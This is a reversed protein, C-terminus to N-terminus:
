SKNYKKVCMNAIYEFPEHSNILMSEDQKSTSTCEFYEMCGNEAACEKGEKQTIFYSTNYDEEVQQHQHDDLLQKKTIV